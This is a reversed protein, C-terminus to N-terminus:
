NNKLIKDKVESKILETYHKSDWVPKCKCIEFVFNALMQNGQLTHTVEPHYQM